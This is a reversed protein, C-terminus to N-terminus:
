RCECRCEIMFESEYVVLDVGSGSGRVNIEIDALEDRLIDGRVRRWRETMAAMAM